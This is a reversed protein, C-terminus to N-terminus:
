VFLLPTSMSGTYSALLVEEEKLLGQRLMNGLISPTEDGLKLRLKLEAIMEHIYTQQITRYERAKETEEDCAWSKIGLLKGIVSRVQRAGRIVPVYDRTPSGITRQRVSGYRLYSLLFLRSDSRM